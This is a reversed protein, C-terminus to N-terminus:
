AAPLVPLVQGVRDGDDTLTRRPQVPQPVVEVVRAEDVRHHDALRRLGEEPDTLHIRLVPRGHDAFKLPSTSRLIEALSPVVLAESTKRRGISAAFSAGTTSVGSASRDLVSSWATLM